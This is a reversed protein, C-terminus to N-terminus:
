ITGTSIACTPQVTVSASPTAPATPINNVTLPLGTSVCGTTVNKVTVTYPGSVLGAFSVSAQYDTGNVSYEINAGTPATVLITGTSIACNASSYCISHTHSTCGPINNVTLPLGTSVCGQNCEKSNRHLLRLCTRCLKREGPLGTGNVSYQINAGTPATVLITGTSIACTPQVTVSATPTAPAGPIGNVTLPLGTSVCGTSVNKATVFHLVPSLDQL